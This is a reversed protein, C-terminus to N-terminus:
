PTPQELSNVGNKQM